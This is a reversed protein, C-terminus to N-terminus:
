GDTLQLLSALREKLPLSPSSTPLLDPSDRIMAPLMQLEPCYRLEGNIMWEPFIHVAKQDLAISRVGSLAAEIVVSSYQTVHVKTGHLAEPLSFLSPDQVTVRSEIGHMQAWAEVEQAQELARPHLRFTWESDPMQERIVEGLGEPIPRALPQLSYLVQGQLDRHDPRYSPMHELWPSGGTFPIHQDKPAWQRINAASAADWCWFYAPISSCGSLPLSRWAGYALHAPGQVGHQLDICPIGMECCVHAVAMNEVSYWCTLFVHSPRLKTLLARYTRLHSRLEHVSRGLSRLEFASFHERLAALVPQLQTIDDLPASPKMWHILSRLRLANEAQLLIGREPPVIQGNPLTSRILLTSDLGIDAAADMLPHAFRDIVGSSTRVQLSDETIFLLSGNRRTRQLLQWEYMGRAMVAARSYTPAPTPPSLQDQIADPKIRMRLVPWIPAGDVLIGYPTFKEEIANLRELLGISNLTM